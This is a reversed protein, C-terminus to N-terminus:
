FGEIYLDKEELSFYISTRKKNIKIQMLEETEALTESDVVLL